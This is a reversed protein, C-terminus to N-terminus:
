KKRFILSNNYKIKIENIYDFLENKCNYIKIKYSFAMNTEYEMNELYQGSQIQIYFAM